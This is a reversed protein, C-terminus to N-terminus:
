RMQGRKFAKLCVCPTLSLFVSSHHPNKNDPHVELASIGLYVGAGCLAQLSCAYM